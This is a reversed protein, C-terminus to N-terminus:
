EAPVPPPFPIQSLVPILSEEEFDLHANLERSMRDLEARFLDPDATAVAQQGIAAFSSRLSFLNGVGYDVIAVM